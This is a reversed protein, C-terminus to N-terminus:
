KLKKNLYAVTFEAWSYDSMYEGAYTNVASANGRLYDYYDCSVKEIDIAM